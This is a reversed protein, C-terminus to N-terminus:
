NMSCLISKPEMASIYIKIGKISTIMRITLITHFIVLTDEPPIICYESNNVSFAPAAFIFYDNYQVKKKKTIYFSPVM